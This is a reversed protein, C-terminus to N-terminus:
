ECVGGCAASRERVWAAIQQPRDPNEVEGVQPHTVIPISPAFTPSPLSLGSIQSRWEGVTFGKAADDRATVLFYQGCDGEVCELLKPMLLTTVVGPNPVQGKVADWIMNGFKVGAGIGILWPSRSALGFGLAVEGISPSAKQWLKGAMNLENGDAERIVVAGDVGVPLESISLLATIENRRLIPKDSRVNVTWLTHDKSGILRQTEKPALPKVVAQIQGFTPMLALLLLALRM